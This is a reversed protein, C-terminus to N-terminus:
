AKPISIWANLERRLTGADKAMSMVNKNERGYAVLEAEPCASRIRLAKDRDPARDAHVVRFPVSAGRAAIEDYMRAYDPHKDLSAPAACVALAAGIENAVPLAALSGASTGMVVVDGYGQDDAFDRLFSAVSSLDGGIGAMGHLFLRRSRDILLLLDVRDPDLASLVQYSPLLLRTRDGSFGVILTKSAPPVAPDGFLLADDLVTERMWRDHPAPATMDATEHRLWRWLGWRLVLKDRLGVSRGPKARGLARVADRAKAPTMQSVIFDLLLNLEPRTRAGRLAEAADGRFVGTEALAAETLASGMPRMAQEANDPPAIDKADLTAAMEGVTSAITLLDVPMPRGYRAELAVLIRVASLSDGDAGAFDQHVSIERHRLEECWIAAIVRENATAPATFPTAEDAREKALYTLAMKDIKGVPTRPLTKLVMIQAPIKHAALRSGLATRLQEPTTDSTLRVAAAVDEGLRAHPMAFTAAEVVEPLDLLAADVEHPSIKEGGRNIQEKMRGTLFLDGEPDLYGLDGTLFWGDRFAARNAEPNAEYGAFVNEGRVAVQGPVGYAEEAGDVGLIRVDPGAARGVSGPKQPAPPLGTSTILPGAETMGLTRIVPAGFFACAAEQESPTLAAAVVRLFRLHPPTLDNRQGHFVLEALTTPVAQFWTPAHARALEFFRAADFTGAAVLSGGSILPGLVLDVLGGIHFQEWMVLCRDEPGLSVSAAVDAASRCVNRHSLPVRKPRGTSGSTMLLLAIDDPERPRLAGTEAQLGTIRLNAELRLVPVGMGQAAAIAAVENGAAVVVADVGTEAFLTRCEPATLRPNFPVATGVSAAALMVVSIGVGNPLVIGIRLGRAEDGVDVAALVQGLRTVHDALEGYSLVTGDPSLLAPATPREQAQATLIAPITAPRGTM